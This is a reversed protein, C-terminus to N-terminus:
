SYRNMTIDTCYMNDQVYICVGQFKYTSRCFSAGLGYHHLAVTKLEENTLHHETLCIIQPSNESSSNYLEDKKHHLGCVNQHFVKFTNKNQKRLVNTNNTQNYNKYTNNRM